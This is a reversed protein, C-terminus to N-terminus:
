IFFFLPFRRGRCRATCLVRSVLEGSCISLLFFPFSVALSAGGSEMCDLQRRNVRSAEADEGKEMIGGVGSLELFRLFRGEWRPNSLLVRAGGLDRNEWVELGAAAIRANPYHLLVHSRTM